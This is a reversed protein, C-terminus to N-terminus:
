FDVSHVVQYRLITKEHYKAVVAKNNKAQAIDDINKGTVKSVFKEKKIQNKKILELLETRDM